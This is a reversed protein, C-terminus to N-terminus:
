AGREGGSYPRVTFGWRPVARRYTSFADGFRSGLTREEYFVVFLHFLLFVLLAYRLLPLSSFLWAKGFLIAMVGNYMPNRTFRYLGQVVLHKPPDIPALTGHGAAFFDWVCRLLVGVGVLLVAAALYTSLAPKLSRLPDAGRLIRSPLYAAVTGPLLVVAIAARVALLLKM